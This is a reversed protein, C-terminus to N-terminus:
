MLRSGDISKTKKKKKRKKKSEETTSINDELNSKNEMKEKKIKMEVYKDYISKSHCYVVITFILILLVFLALEILCFRVFAFIISIFFMIIGMLLYADRAFFHTQKWIFETERTVKFNIAPKSLYPANKLKISLVVIMISIPMFLSISIPIDCILGIILNSSISFYSFYLVNEFLAFVFFMKLAFIAKKNKLTLILIVFITPIICASLMIWKSSFNTIKEYIDLEVPIKDPLLFITLLLTAIFNALGLFTFTIKTKTNNSM